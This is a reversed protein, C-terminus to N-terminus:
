RGVNESDSGVTRLVEEAGMIDVSQEPRKRFEPRFSSEVNSLLILFVLFWILRFRELVFVKWQHLKIVFTHMKAM